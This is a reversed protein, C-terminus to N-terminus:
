EKRYELNELSLLHTGSAADFSLSYSTAFFGSTEVAPPDKVPWQAVQKSQLFSLNYLPELFIFRGNYSGYAIARKFATGHLEEGTTDIWHKGMRPVGGPMPVYDKPRFATAPLVEMEPGNANIADREEESLMYFHVTVHPTDYPAPKEPSYELSIHKFLTNNEAPMKIRYEAGGAPFSKLAADSVALGVATPNGTEDKKIFSKVQGNGVKVETGNVVEEKQGIADDNDDSCSMATLGIVAIFLSNLLFKNSYM